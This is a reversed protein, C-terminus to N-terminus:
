SQIVEADGVKAGCRQGFRGVPKPPGEEHVERHLLTNQLYYLDGRLGFVKRYPSRSELSAKFLRRFTM